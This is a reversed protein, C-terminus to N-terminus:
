DLYKPHNILYIVTLTELFTMYRLQLTVVQNIGTALLTDTVQRWYECKEVNQIFPFQSIAVGFM